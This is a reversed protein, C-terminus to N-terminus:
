KVSSMEVAAQLISRAHADVHAGTASAAKLLIASWESAHSFRGVYIPVTRGSTDSVFLTGKSRWSGTQKFTISRLENLDAHRRWPGIDREISSESFKLRTCLTWGGLGIALILLESTEAAAIWGQAVLFYLWAGLGCIAPVLEGFETQRAIRM